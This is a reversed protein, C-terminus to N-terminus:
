SVRMNIDEVPLEEVRSFEPYRRILFDIAPGAEEPIEIFQAEEGHYELSNETTYYLRVAGAELVIRVCNWRLLKVEVDPGVESRNYVRGGQGFVLM